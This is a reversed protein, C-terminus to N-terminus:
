VKEECQACQRDRLVNEPKNVTHTNFVESKSEGFSEYSEWIYKKVM